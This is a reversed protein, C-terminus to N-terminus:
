GYGTLYTYKSLDFREIKIREDQNKEIKQNQNSSLIPIKVVLEENNIYFNNYFNKNESNFDIFKKVNM